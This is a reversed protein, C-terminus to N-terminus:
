FRGPTQMGWGGAAFVLRSIPSGGREEVRILPGEGTQSFAPYFGYCSDRDGSEVLRANIVLEYKRFPHEKVLVSNLAHPDIQTLEGGSIQWKGANGSRLRWGLDEPEGFFGFFTDEFGYTVSCGKFSCATKETFLALSDPKNRISGQWGTRGDLRSDPTVSGKDRSSCAQRL